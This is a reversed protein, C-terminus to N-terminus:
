KEEEIEIIIDKQIPILKFSGLRNSFYMGEEKKILTDKELIEVYLEDFDQTTVREGKYFMVGSSLEQPWSGHNKLYVEKIIEERTM